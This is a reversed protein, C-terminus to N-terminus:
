NVGNRVEVANTISQINDNNWTGCRTQKLDAYGAKMLYELNPNCCM